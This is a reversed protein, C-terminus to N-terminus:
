RERMFRKYFAHTVSRNGVTTITPRGLTPFLV